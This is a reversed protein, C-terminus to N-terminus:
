RRDSRRRDGGGRRIEQGMYKGGTRIEGIGRELRKRSIEGERRRTKV